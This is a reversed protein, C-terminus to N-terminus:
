EECHRYNWYEWLENRFESNSFHGNFFDEVGKPNAVEMGRKLFRIVKYLNTLVKANLKREKNAAVRVAHVGEDSRKVFEKLQIQKSEHESIERKLRARVRAALDPGENEVEVKENKKLGLMKLERVTAM